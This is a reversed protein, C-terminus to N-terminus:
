VWPTSDRVVATYVSKSIKSWANSERSADDHLFACVESRAGDNRRSASDAGPRDNARACNDHSIHRRPDSHNAYGGTRDSM